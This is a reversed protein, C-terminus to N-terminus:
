EPSIEAKKGCFVTGIKDIIEKNPLELECM